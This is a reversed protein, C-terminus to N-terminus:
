SNPYYQPVQISAPDVQINHPYTYPFSSASYTFTEEPVNAFSPAFTVQTHSLPPPQHEIEPQNISMPEHEISGSNAVLQDIMRRQTAM